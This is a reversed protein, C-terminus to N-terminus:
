AKAEEKVEKKTNVVIGFIISVILLVAGAIEGIVTDTYGCLSLIVTGGITGILYLYKKWGTLSTKNVENAIALTAGAVIGVISTTTLIPTDTFFGLVTSGAILLIGILTKWSFKM